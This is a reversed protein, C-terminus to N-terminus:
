YLCSYISGNYIKPLRTLKSLHLRWMTDPFIAKKENEAYIGVVGVLDRTNSRSILFDGHKVEKSSSFDKEAISKYGNNVFGRRSLCNLNLVHWESDGNIENASYGSEPVVSLLNGLKMRESGNPLAKFSSLNREFYNSFLSLLMQQMLLGASLEFQYLALLSVEVKQLVELIAKQRAPPPLPFKFLKLDSWKTFPNTSGVSVDVAYKTFDDSQMIFPLLGPLMPSDDRNRLILTTNATIGDFDPVAAKKLYARRTMYLLEGAKFYKTFTPGAEERTSKRSFRLSGSDFDEGRVSWEIGEAIPDTCKRRVEEAVDGLRVSKWGAKKKEESLKM